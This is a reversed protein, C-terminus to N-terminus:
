RYTISSPWHATCEDGIGVQYIQQHTLIPTSPNLIHLDYIDSTATNDPNCHLPREVIVYRKKPRNKNGRRFAKLTVKDISQLTDRLGRGRHTNRLKKLGKGLAM